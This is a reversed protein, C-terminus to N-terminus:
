KEKVEVEKIEAKAEEEEEDKNAHDFNVRNYSLWGFFALLGRKVGSLAEQLGWIFNPIEEVSKEEAKAPRCGMSCKLIEYKWQSANRVTM